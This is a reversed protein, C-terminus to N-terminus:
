RRQPNGLRSFDWILAPVDFPVVAALLVDVDTAAVGSVPGGGAPM